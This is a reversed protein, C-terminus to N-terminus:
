IQACVDWASWIVTRLNGVKRCDGVRPISSGGVPQPVFGTANVALDCPLDFIKEPTKVTVSGERIETLTSRLYVPVQHYALLERLCSSNALCVSDAAILDDAAEVIVPHRGTLVMEYAAECASLGGGLFVIRDPANEKEALLKPLGATLCFGPIPLMRPVAGTASIVADFEGSLVGPDNIETELRVEIRNERIERRYWELLARDSKKFSLSSAEIFIGGLRSSKEFITPIHGRRRLVLACEMGGIGGGIVAVRKSEKAPIIRYKKQQMVQPDLACRALHMADELSQRNPKDAYKSFNFCANHCRICPRIEEERGASLKSVWGTDALNQRAFGAADIKGQAIMEAAAAPDMKGACVVPITVARRIIEAEPLNCNDPMYQPPHAWYWADYTGNDCNLMDYGAAQLYRAARVSEEAGRGFEEFAEGPVAGQRFGKTKSTVSYRLSVPFDEGAYKKICQVIEAPFRYRNEFSGGYQDTRYNMNAITFQDILYGEHVAHVEVGDAGAERLLAATKGFGLVIQHIEDVTLPRSVIGDAWRNPTESASACAYDVDLVPSALRGLLKNKLLKVMLENVAMSRGFGGSLQVFLKAGTRHFEEMFPKMKEFMKTNTHLWRGGMTDRVCQMGPLILGVGDRARQLLYAAAEEDFHCPELWGFLSTGGMAEQVIRNKIEVNGIKWPTFLPQYIEKVTEEKM